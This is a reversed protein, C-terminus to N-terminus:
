ESEEEPNEMTEADIVDAVPLPARTAIDIVKAGEFAGVLSQVLPHQAADDLRAQKAADAQEKLTSEGSQSSIAVIWREGTWETLLKGVNGAFDSPVNSAPRVEVRGREFKVLHVNQFLHSWLIPEKREQFLSVMEEFTALGVLPSVETQPQPQVQAVPENQPVPATELPKAMAQPRSGGSSGGGNYSPASPPTAAVANAQAGGGSPVPGSNELKGEQLTQIVEAPSPLSAAHMVRILVMEAAMYPNPAHQAESLGKSLLQWNRTLEAVGLKEALKKAYKREQEALEASEALDPVLKVRTTLHVLEMLEQLLYIPDAGDDYQAKFSHLAEKTEGALLQELLQFSRSRDALGLMSRVAEEKVLAKGDEDTGHAIAQDLLSLSDRVSGEAANAILQLATEEAEVSEKGCIKSLHQTLEDADIRKLDFTQCRSLITVPIKRLETTAFIFKVHPPPEELTKLLANFASNSLMHVEDIIYIKYRANTPAYHVTDILERMSEVGTRSAADMEIVDMHRDETIMKCNACEGCPQITPGGNGDPGVCNLARAILRATTTKGVGRIGTLLFAHALRGTKIANSLTRVLAEQGILDEFVTPRYKRALVRYGTNNEEEGFLNTM